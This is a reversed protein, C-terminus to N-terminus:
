RSRPMEFEFSEQKKGAEVKLHLRGTDSGEPTEIVYSTETKKVPTLVIDKDGLKIKAFLGLKTMEAEAVGNGAVKVELKKARPTIQVTFLKGAQLNPREPNEQALAGCAVVVSFLAILKKM